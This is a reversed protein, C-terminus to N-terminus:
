RPTLTAHGTTPDITLTFANLLDRGLLGDVDPAPVDHVVVAVPGLRAGAIDLRPVTVEFAHSAGTVGIVRVPRGRSADLGARAVAAPALMTRDAGTDLMLTLPVGNLQATVMIPEGGSLPITAPSPVPPAPSDSPPRWADIVHVDDRHQEPINEPNTTLHVVGTADTWRYVQAAAPAGSVLIIAFAGAAIARV